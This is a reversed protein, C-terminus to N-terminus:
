FKKQQDITLFCGETERPTPFLTSSPATLVFCFLVFFLAGSKSVWNFFLLWNWSSFECPGYCRSSPLSSVLRFDLKEEQSIPLTIMVSHPPQQSEILDHVPVVQHVLGLEGEREGKETKGEKPSCCEETRTGSSRRDSHNFEQRESYVHRQEAPFKYIVLGRQNVTKWALLSPTM